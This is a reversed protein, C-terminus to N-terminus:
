QAAGDGQRLTISADVLGATPLAVISAEQVLVRSDRRQGDLWASLAAFSAGNLQLKAYEGTLSLTQAQLGQAALAATLSARSMPAAPAPALRALEGAQRALTEIEAAEQRLLPLEKQLRARGAVAPGILVAYLLALAALGGGVSLFQREQETRAQWFASAMHKYRGLALTLKNM